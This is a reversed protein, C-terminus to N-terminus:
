ILRHRCSTALVQDRSLVDDMEISFWFTENDVRDLRDFNQQLAKNFEASLRDDCGSLVFLAQLHEGDGMAVDQKIENLNRAIYSERLLQENNLGIFSCEGWSSLFQVASTSQGTYVMPDVAMTTGQTTSQSTAKSSGYKKSAETSFDGFYDYKRMGNKTYFKFCRKDDYGHANFAFLVFFLLVIPKM